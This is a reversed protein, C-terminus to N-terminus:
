ESVLIEEAGKGFGGHIKLHGAFFRQRARLFEDAAEALTNAAVLGCNNEIHVVVGLNIQLASETQLFGVPQHRRLQIDPEPVNAKELRLLFLFELNAHAGGPLDGTVIVFNFFRASPRRQVPGRGLGRRLTKEACSESEVQACPVQESLFCVRFLFRVAEVPREGPFFVAKARFIRGIPQLDSQLAVFDASAFLEQM